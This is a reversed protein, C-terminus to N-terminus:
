NRAPWHADRMHEAQTAYLRLNSLANNRPNGDIHHVVEEPRLYRGLHQEMILRHELIYKLGSPMHQDAPFPHDDPAVVLTYGDKRVKRGGQWQPAAAKRRGYMPNDAGSRKVGFMPNRDGSIDRHLSPNADTRNRATMACSKSCYQRLHSPHSWVEQGCQACAGLTGRRKAASACAHSCYIPRISPYTDYTQGCHACVRKIM